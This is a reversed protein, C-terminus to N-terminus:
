SPLMFRNGAAHLAHVAYGGRWHSPPIRLDHLMDSALTFRASHGHPIDQHALNELLMTKGRGNPGILVVNAAEALFALSFLEEIAGRDCKTPWSWDFDTIPRFAGLRTISDVSSRAALANPKKL